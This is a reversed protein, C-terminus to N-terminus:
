RHRLPRSNAPSSAKRKAWARMRSAAAHPRGQAGRASSWSRRASKAQPSGRGREPRTDPPVVEQLLGIALRLERRRSLALAGEAGPPRAGTLGGGAAGKHVPQNRLARVQQLPRGGARRRGPASRGAGRAPPPAPRPPCARVGVPDKLSAIARASACSSGRSSDRARTSRWSTRSWASDLLLCASARRSAREASRRRRPARRHSPGTGPRAGGRRSRTSRPCTGAASSAQPWAASIAMGRRPRAPAGVGQGPPRVAATKPGVGTVSPVGRHSSIRRSTAALGTATAAIRWGAASRAMAPSGSSSLAAAEAPPSRSGPRARCASRWPRACRAGATRSAAPRRSPTASAQRRPPCSRKSAIPSRAALEHGRRGQEAEVRSRPAPGRRPPRASSRRSGSVAAGFVGVWIM